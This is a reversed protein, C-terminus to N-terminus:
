GLNVTGMPCGLIESIEKYTFGRIDRLVIM